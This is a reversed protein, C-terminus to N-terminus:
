RVADAGSFTAGSGGTAGAGRGSCPRIPLKIVILTTAGNARGGTPEVQHSIEIARYMGNRDKQSPRETASVRDRSRERKLGSCYEPAGGKRSGRRAGAVPHAIGEDRARPFPVSADCTLLRSHVPRLDQPAHLQRSASRAAAQFALWGFGMGATRLFNRRDGIASPGVSLLSDNERSM